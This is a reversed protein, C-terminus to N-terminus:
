LIHNADESMSPRRRSVIRFSPALLPTGRQPAFRLAPLDPGRGGPMSAQRPCDNRSWNWQRSGVEHTRMRFGGRHLASLPGPRGPVPHDRTAPAVSTLSHAQRREMWGEDPPRFQQQRSPRRRLGHARRRVRFRLCMQLSARVRVCCRAAPVFLVASNSMTFRSLALPESQAGRSRM